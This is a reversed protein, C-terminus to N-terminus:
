FDALIQDVVGIRLQELMEFLSSEVRADPHPTGAFGAIVAGGTRSRFDTSFGTDSPARHLPLAFRDAPAIGAHL